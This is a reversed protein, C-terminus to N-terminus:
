AALGIIKKAERTARLLTIMNYNIKRLSNIQNINHSDFNLIFVSRLIKDKLADNSRGM